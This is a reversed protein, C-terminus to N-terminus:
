SPEGGSHAPERDGGPDADGTDLLDRGTLALFVDELSAPRVYVDDVDVGSQTLTSLVARGDDSHVLVRDYLDIVDSTETDLSPLARGRLVSRPVEVVHRRACRRVLERPAGEVLVRGHDMIVLRDCLQTAEEMYHTTLVLTAGAAKLSRLRDWIHHRAQPDLGTTPEDLLVVEPDNVLARAIVLRRKMGGSLTRVKADARDALSMFELHEVARRRAEISRIGFYRAYVVLNEMVTLEDDLSDEQPVVGLHAKIRRGAGPASVDTGLVTLAGSTVPTVCGIMRMTSTKGAGNPGLMGFCEGRAVHLDIGDVAVFGDYAKTLAGARVVDDPM